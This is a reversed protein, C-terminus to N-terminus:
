HKQKRKNNAAYVALAVVTIVYPVMRVIENPVNFVQLNNSLADAFGFLFAMAMSRIPISRGMAEAAIAIFGRGAIMDKTFMSLYGMSMFAGGMSAMLGCLLLANRKIKYVNIGAAEVAQWHEGVARIYTGQKTRKLFIHILFVCLIAIWTLINQESLVPVNALGPIKFTPLVKSPLATSVGKDGTILFLIFVTLGSALLNLAIGALVVDTKLKLVFIAFIWSLLVGSAIAALLGVFASGTAASGVVGMLSAVLMMGEVGINLVGAKNSILVAMTAFLIPTSVRLLSNLFDANFVIEILKEM